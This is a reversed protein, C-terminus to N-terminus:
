IKSDSCLSKNKYKQLERPLLRHRGLTPKRRRLVMLGADATRVNRSPEGGNNYKKLLPFAMNYNLQRFKKLKDELSVFDQRKRRTYIKSFIIILSQYIEKSHMGQRKNWVWPM